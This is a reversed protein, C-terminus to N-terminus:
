TGALGLGFRAVAEIVAEQWNRADMTRDEMWGGGAPPTSRIVSWGPPNNWHITPIAPIAHQLSSKRRRLGPTLSTTKEGNMSAYSSGVDGDLSVCAARLVGDNWQL